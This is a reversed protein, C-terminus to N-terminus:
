IHHVESGSKVYMSQATTRTIRSSTFNATVSGCTGAFDLVALLLTSNNTKNFFTMRDHM